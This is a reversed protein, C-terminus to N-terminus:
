IKIYKKLVQLKGTIKEYFSPASFDHKDYYREIIKSYKTLDTPHVLPFDLEENIMERRSDNPDTTHTADEGFGINSVLNKSPVICKLDDKFFQLCLQYDWADILGAHTREFAQYWYGRTRKRSSISRIIRKKDKTDWLGMAIDYSDWVRRWSAWGWTLPYKIAAYSEAINIENSHTGYGAILGITRDDKYKKLLEQCYKFFSASPVIDDEIIIGMEENKFFWEIASSVAVKSGQNEKNFLTRVECDWDIHNLVYKRVRNVREKEDPRNNRPGDAGIYLRKPKVKKIAEFSKITSDIRKFILFLVAIDIHDSHNLLDEIESNM